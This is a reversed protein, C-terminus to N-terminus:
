PAVIRLEDRQAIRPCVFVRDPNFSLANPLNLFSLTRLRMRAGPGSIEDGLSWVRGDQGEPVPVAVYRGDSVDQHLRTGDGDRIVIPGARHAHFWVTDMGKPVYFFLPPTYGSPRYTQGPEVHIAGPVEPPVTMHFGRGRSFCTLRYVGPAPVELQLDHTGTALAGSALTNGDLDRLTYVTDPREHQWPEHTIAMELPEGRISALLYNAETSARLSRPRRGAELGTEVLVYDHSEEFRPVDPVGGAAQLIAELRADLEATTVPMDVRWPNRQPERLTNRWFWDPEDFRDAAPRGFTSRFTLWAIMYCKRIRYAWTLWELSVAREHERDDGGGYRMADLTEGIDSYVIVKKLDDIRALAAADDHAKRSASQLERIGEALLTKGRLPQNGTDFLDYFREMAPAAAGFSNRMFDRRLVDVDADPNWMLRNAVYYGLGHIGWNCSAQANIGRVAGSAAYERMHRATRRIDTVRTGPLMGKDMEWYSYYEYISMTECKASWQEFLEDFELPGLNLGRTLQVHVNPELDFAPPMSYWSYALLGVFKGPHTERLARAAINALYFPQASHHGLAACAACTCWGPQDAPDLSVMDAEPNREFFRNVYEIILRQLDANTVCFQPGRRVGDVLAFYQPNDEFVGEFENPIAHWRHLTRVTLSHDMRNRRAWERYVERADPDGPEGAQALRDFWINRSWMYPRSTEELGFSLDPLSPVIEWAPGMFFWRCGLLELFRYVAHSVGLDTNALLRICGDDSRIGFAEIGDYHNRIAIAQRLADDPFQAITGLTIGRAVTDEEIVFGAGTIRELYAALESARERLAGSADPAVVVPLLARGDRAVPVPDERVPLEVGEPTMFARSQLVVISALIRLIIAGCMGRCIRQVFRESKTM